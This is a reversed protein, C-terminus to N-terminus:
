KSPLAPEQPSQRHGCGPIQLASHWLNCLHNQRGNGDVRKVIKGLSTEIIDGCVNMYNETILQRFTFEAGRAGIEQISNRKTTGINKVEIKKSTDSFTPVGYCKVLKFDSRVIDAIERWMQSPRIGVKFDEENYGRFGAM